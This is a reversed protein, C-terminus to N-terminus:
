RNVASQVTNTARAMNPDASGNLLHSLRSPITNAKAKRIPGEFRGPEIWSSVDDHDPVDQPRDPEGEEAYKEQKGSGNAM